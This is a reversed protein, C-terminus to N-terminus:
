AIDLETMRRRLARRSVELHEAVRDLNPGHEAVASEIEEAELDGAKRVRSSKAVLNYLSARSIGLHDAASQLNFGHVRLAEVMEDEGVDSPSRRPAKPSSTPGSTAPDLGPLELALPAMGRHGVEFVEVAGQGSDSLTLGGHRIWQIEPDSLMDSAGSAQRALDFANRTLLIQRAGAVNLVQSAAALAQRSAGDEMIEMMRAGNAIEARSNHRIGLEALHISIRGHLPIPEGDRGHQEALDLLLEQYDLAWGVAELPRKFLLVWYEDHSAVEFGAWEGLLQRLGSYIESRLARAREPGLLDATPAWPLTAPLCLTELRRTEEGEGPAAPSSPRAEGQPDATETPRSPATSDARSSTSPDEAAGSDGAKGSAGAGLLKELQPTWRLRGQHRGEVILRRAANRLQRVNGPWDFLALRAVLKAPLWPRQPSGRRELPVLDGSAELERRLFHILLRGIDDRREALAPLHIEFGGLRHLLPARFGEEAIASELDADTAAVIRADFTVESEGGVPLVRGTELARLLGAQVEVPAEGVEDLFLTGGKAREFCGKRNRDAGTFAGKVVGFLEAAALSPAVAGLNVAVFPKSRRKSARHIAQAVLEKGTGTAGRVLVPVDLDAAQSIERRVLAIDSNDGELGHRPVSHPPLPDSLHLLLAVRDALLLVIGQTLDTISFVRVETVVRGDVRLKTRAPPTLRVERDETMELLIPERSLFKDELTRPEGGDPSIFSPESRSVAVSVGPNLSHLLCREGIREVSPHALITLGPIRLRNRAEMSGSRLSSGFQSAILTSDQEVSFTYGM